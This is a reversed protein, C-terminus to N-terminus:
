AKIGNYRLAAFRSTMPCDNVVVGGVGAPPGSTPRRSSSWCIRAALVRFTTVRPPIVVPASIASASVKPATAAWSPV